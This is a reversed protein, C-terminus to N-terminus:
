CTLMNMDFDNYTEM